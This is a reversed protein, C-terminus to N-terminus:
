SSAFAEGCHNCLRKRGRRVVKGCHVCVPQGAADPTPLLALLVGLPGLIVGIAFWDSGDRRRIAAALLGCAIWVVVVILWEM